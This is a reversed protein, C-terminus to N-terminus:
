RLEHVVRVSVEGRPAPRVSFGSAAELLCRRAVAPMGEDRHVLARARGSRDVQLRIELRRLRSRMPDQRLDANGLCLELRRRQAALYGQVAAEVRAVDEAPVGRAASASVM